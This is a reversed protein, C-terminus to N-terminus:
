PLQNRLIELHESSEIVHLDSNSAGYNPAVLGPSNSVLSNSNLELLLSM